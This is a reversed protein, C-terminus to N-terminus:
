YLFPIFRSTRREWERFEEGYRHKLYGDLTPIHVFLFGAAMLAPLVFAWPNRTLMAFGSFLV